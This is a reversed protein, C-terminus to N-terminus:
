GGHAPVAKQRKHYRANEDILLGQGQLYCDLIITENPLVTIDFVEDQLDIAAGLIGTFDIRAGFMLQLWASEKENFGRNFSKMVREISDGMATRFFPALQMRTDGGSIIWFDASYQAMSAAYFHVKSCFVSRKSIIDMVADYSVGDFLDVTLRSDAPCPIDDWLRVHQTYLSENTIKVSLVALRTKM